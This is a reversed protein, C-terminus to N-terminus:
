LTSVSFPMSGTMLQFPIVRSDGPRHPLILAAADHNEFIELGALYHGRLRGCTQREINILDTELDHYRHVPDHSYYKMKIRDGTKIWNLLDSGEKILISMFDSHTEWIKYQYIIDLEPIPIEVCYYQDLDRMTLAAYDIWKEAPSQRNM